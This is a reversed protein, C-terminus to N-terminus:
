AADDNKEDDETEDESSFEEEVHLTKACETCYVEEMDAHLWRTDKGASLEERTQWTMRDSMKLKDCTRCHQLVAEPLWM